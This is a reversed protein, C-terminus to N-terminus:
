LFSLNEEVQKKNRDRPLARFTRTEGVPMVCSQPIIRVSFLPGAFEFFQKQAAHGLTGASVASPIDDPIDPLDAHPKVSRRLGQIHIDFWDYEEAPLSLV